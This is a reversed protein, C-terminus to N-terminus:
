NLGPDFLLEPKGVLYGQAYDVGLGALKNLQAESEVYEAITKRGYIKAASSIFNVVLESYPETLLNNIFSGDIKMYDINFKSLNILNSSGIGIDDMAMRCGLRNKLANMFHIAQRYDRDAVTETIEFCVQEPNVKYEKFEKELMDIFPTYRMTNGSINLAYMANDPKNQSYFRCFQQIVYYDVERSVHFLEAAELFRSKYDIDGLGNKIRLLVEYKQEPSRNGIPVIPQCFLVFAKNKLGETIEPLLKLSDYYNHLVPDDHEILKVMSNGTRRAQFLAEDVAALIREPTKYEPALPTIGIILKPFYSVGDINVSQKDISQAMEEAVALCEEVPLKVIVAFRNWGLKGMRADPLNKIRSFIFEQVAFILQEEASIGQLLSALKPAHNIESYILTYGPDNGASIQGIDRIFAPRALLNM